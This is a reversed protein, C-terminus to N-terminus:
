MCLAKIREGVASLKNRDRFYIEKDREKKKGDNDLYTQDVLGKGYKPHVHEILMDLRQFRDIQAAAKCVWNDICSHGLEPHTIGGMGEIFRRGIFPHGDEKGHTAGDKFSIVCVLDPPTVARVKEDWHETRFLLDDAGMMVLDANTKKRLVEYAPGLNIRPGITFDVGSGLYEEKRRDDEDLYCLVEFQEKSTKRASDIMKWFRDPRGRSPCLIAISTKVVGDALMARHLPDM